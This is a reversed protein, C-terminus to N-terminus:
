IVAFRVGEDLVDDDHRVKLGIGYSVKEWFKPYHEEIFKQLRQNALLANKTAPQIYIDGSNDVMSKNIHKIIKLLCDDEDGEFFGFKSSYDKFINGLLSGSNVLAEWLAEQRLQNNRIGHIITLISMKDTAIPEQPFRMHLRMLVQIFDGYFQRHINIEGLGNLIILAKEKARALNGSNFSAICILCDFAGRMGADTKALQLTLDELEQNSVLRIESKHETSHKKAALQCLRLQILIKQSLSSDTRNLAMEFDKVARQFQGLEYYILGRSYFARAKTKDIEIADTHLSMALELKKKDNYLHFFLHGLYTLADYHNPNIIIAKNYYAKAQDFDSNRQFVVGLKCYADAYNPNHGVAISFFKNARVLHGKKLQECGMSYATIAELAGSKM